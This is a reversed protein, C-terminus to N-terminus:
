RRMIEELSNRAYAAKESTPYRELLEKYLQQASDFRQTEELCRAAEFMAEAQWHHYPEPADVDGYGYAVQFFKRVADDFEKQAFLVEGVMFRARAGLVQTDNAAVTEFLQQAEDLRELRYLAWGREYRVQDSWKGSPFEGASTELLELSRQWQGLQAAAQGAHLLALERLPESASPQELATTFADLAAAFKERQFECEGILLLADARLRGDPHDALQKEFAEQAAEFQRQEFCSWALKHLSKESLEATTARQGASWFSKAAASYKKAAYHAEGVHYWSEAALPSNPYSEVLKAFTATAQTANQAEQYAWALDYLVRDMARYQPDKQVIRLLTEAADAPQGLGMECLGRTYIADSRKPRPPDTALVADADAIGGAFDGRQHRVAARLLLAEPALEHKRFVKVIRDLSAAAAALQQQGYQVRAQALLARPALPSDPRAALLREFDALAATPNPTAAHLEGRLLLARGVSASDPHQSILEDLTEISAVSQGQAHEAQALTLLVDDAQTWRPLAAAATLVDVARDAHGLELYSKGLVLAAEARLETASIDRWAPALIRIAEGCSQALMRSHAQRVTWADRQAHQPHDALLKQFADAADAFEGQQLKVEAAVQGVEAALGCDPYRQLFNAARKGATEVDGSELAAHTAMYAARPALEHDPYDKAVAAYAAVSEARREALEYLADARDLQLQARWRPSVTKKLQRDVLSLADAANTARIMTQVRWHTWESALDSGRSAAQHVIPEARELWRKAQDADGARLSCGGAAVMARGALASDPFREVLQGYLIAAGAFDNAALRCQAQLELARDADPFRDVAAAAALCAEADAPRGVALLVEGRRLQADAVQDHRPFETLFRAFSEAAASAQGQEQQAVGLAHWLEGRRPHQPYHKLCAAYATAAADLRGLAYLAEGRCFASEAAQSGDPFQKLQENFAAVAADLAAVAQNGQAERGFNYEALGLHAYCQETLAQDLQQRQTVLQRFEARADNFQGLRFLCVGREFRARPALPDRPFDDVLATWEKAALDYLERNALAAAARFREAAQPNSTSTPATQPAVVAERAAGSQGDAPEAVVVSSLAVMSVASWCRRRVIWRGLM